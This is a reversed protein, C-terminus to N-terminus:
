REGGVPFGAAKAKQLFEECRRHLLHKDYDEDQHCWHCTEGPGDWRRYAHLEFYLQEVLQVAEAILTDKM